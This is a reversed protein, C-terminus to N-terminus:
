VLGTKKISEIRATQAQFFETTEKQLNSLRTLQKLKQSSQNSGVELKFTTLSLQVIQDAQSKLIAQLGERLAIVKDVKDSASLTNDNRIRALETNFTPVQAARVEVLDNIEAEIQDLALGSDAAKEQPAIAPADNANSPAAETPQAATAVVGEGASRAV